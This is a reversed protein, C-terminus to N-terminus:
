DERGPRSIPMAIVSLFYRAQSPTQRAHRDQQRATLEDLVANLRDVLDQAEAKDLLLGTGGNLTPWHIQANVDESHDILDVIVDMQQRVVELGPGRLAPVRLDVSYGSHSTLTWWSERGDSGTDRAVYGARQMLRLHYSASNPPIGLQRAVDSTRAPKWTLVQLIRMRTRNAAVRLKQPSDLPM